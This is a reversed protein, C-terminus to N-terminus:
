IYAVSPLPGSLLYINRGRLPPVGIMKLGKKSWAERQAKSVAARSMDIPFESLDLFLVFEM